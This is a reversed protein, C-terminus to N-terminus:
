WRHTLSFSVMRGLLDANEPDYGIGSINNNLFPPQSDFINRAALAFSTEGTAAPDYPKLRYGLVLDYTAWASVSRPPTSLPDWYASQFNVAPRVSFGRLEWGANAHLQVAPPNHATGRLEQLPGAPSESQRFRLMYTTDLGIDFYGPRAQWAYRSALHLGDARVTEVNHLRIDVVAGVAASSCSGPLGYFQSHSCIYDLQSSSVNRQALWSEQPNSFVDLPVSDTQLVRNNSTINFYALNGLFNPHNAPSFTVGFSWSHATEPRLSANNGAWVLATTYGTPSKPDQLPVLESFNNSENLDPLNPPRFLRAWTGQLKLSPTPAFAFGLQPSLCTGADSFHEYRLGASLDLKFPQWRDPTMLPIAEQAFLASIKRDRNTTPAAVIDSPGVQSRFTQVRYEAGVTTMLPGAPLATLAGNATVNLYTYASRYSFHGDQKIDNLTSQPTFSGDGFPDFATAADKTALYGQLKAFNILGREIDSQNEWSSGVYSQINWAPNIQHHIGFTVQGSDVQGQFRIPGVDDQFGYLVTLPSRDTAIPNAYFPNTNPVSLSTTLGASQSTVWRRSALADFFVGWSDGIEHEMTALLGARRQQPLIWADDYRNHYKAAQVFDSSQLSKGDQGAPVSWLRGQSDIITAPNGAPNDFNNGGFPTLDSTAQSRGSAPLADREYYEVSLLAGGQASRTGASQSFAREGLSGSTLHGVLAQSSPYSMDGRLVINVVGGIADAGYLVAAGDSIIEIHDVASMPINSIDIFSGASGSPALRRGNVLILTARSGLGFLNMGTGFATNTKAERLYDHTDETAGSGYNLSLARPFDSLTTIGTAYLQQIPIDVLPAGAPPAPGSRRPKAVNCILSALQEPTDRCQASGQFRVRGTTNDGSGHPDQLRTLLRTILGPTRRRYVTWTRENVAEFALPTGDLMRALADGPPLTGEVPNTRVAQAVDFPFFIQLRAQRSFANLTQDATGAPISFHPNGAAAEDSSDAADQASLSASALAVACAAISAVYRRRYHRMVALHM